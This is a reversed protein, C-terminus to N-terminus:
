RLKGGRDNAVHYQVVPDGSYMGIVSKTCRTRRIRDRHALRTDNGDEERDGTSGYVLSGGWRGSQAEPAGLSAEVSDSISCGPGEHAYELACDTLGEDEANLTDREDGNEEAPDGDEDDELSIGAGDARAMPEHFGTQKDVLKHRGRTQWEPWSVDGKGDDDPEADAPDGPLGDKRPCFDAVDEHDDALDLLDLAVTIFGALQDRDFSALVRSVAAPPVAFQMGMDATGRSLASRRESCPSVPKRCRFRAAEYIEAFKLCFDRPTVCPEDRLRDYAVGYLDGLREEEADCISSPSDNLAIKARMYDAHVMEFRSPSAALAPMAAASSIAVMAGLIGRRTPAASAAMSHPGAPVRPAPRVGDRNSDALLPIPNARVSDPRLASAAM